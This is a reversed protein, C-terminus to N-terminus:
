DLIWKQGKYKLQNLKIGQSDFEYLITMVKDLLNVELKQYWCICDFYYRERGHSLFFHHKSCSVCLCLNHNSQPFILEEKHDFHTPKPLLFIFALKVFSFFLRKIGYQIIEEFINLDHHYSFYHKLKLFWPCFLIM